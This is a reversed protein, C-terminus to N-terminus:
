TAGLEILFSESKNPDLRIRFLSLPAMPTFLSPASVQRVATYSGGDNKKFAM